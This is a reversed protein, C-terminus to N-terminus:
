IPPVGGKFQLRYALTETALPRSHDPSRGYLPSCSVGTDEPGDDFVGNTMVSGSARWGRGGWTIKNVEGEVM